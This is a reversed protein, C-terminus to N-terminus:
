FKYILSHHIFILTSRPCSDSDCWVLHLIKKKQLVSLFSRRALNTVIALSLSLSFFFGQQTLLSTYIVYQLCFDSSQRLTM